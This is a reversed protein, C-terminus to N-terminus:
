ATAEPPECDLVGLFDDQFQRRLRTQQASMIPGCYRDLISAVGGGIAPSSGIASLLKFQMVLYVPPRGRRSSSQPPSWFGLHYDLGALTLCRNALDMDARMLNMEYSTVDRLLSRLMLLGQRGPESLWALEDLNTAVQDPPLLGPRTWPPSTAPSGTFSERLRAYAGTAVDHLHVLLRACAADPLFDWSPLAIKFGVPGGDSPLDTDGALHCGAPLPQTRFADCMVQAALHAIPDVLARRKNVDDVEGLPVISADRYAAAPWCNLHWHMRKDWWQGNDRDTTSPDYNTGIMLQAGDLGFRRRTSSAHIYRVFQECITLLATLMAEPVDSVSSAIVRDDGVTALLMMDYVSHPFAKDIVAIRDGSGGTPYERLIHPGYHDRYHPSLNRVDPPPAALRPMPLGPIVPLTM